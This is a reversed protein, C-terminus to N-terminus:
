HKRKFINLLVAELVLNFVVTSLADGQRLGSNINFIDTRGQCVEVVERSDTLTMKVLRILKALIKLVKLNKYM